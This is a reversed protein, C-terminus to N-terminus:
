IEDLFSNWRGDVVEICGISGGVQRLAKNAGEHILFGKGPLLQWAGPRSGAQFSHPNYHPMWSPTCVRADHLGSDCPRVAPTANDGRNHLAFRIAPYTGGSVIRIEYTPVNYIVPRGLPKGLYYQLGDRHSYPVIWGMGIQKSSIVVQVANM